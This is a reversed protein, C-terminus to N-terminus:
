SAGGTPPMKYVLRYQREGSATTKVAMRTQPLWPRLVALAADGAVDAALLGGPLRRIVAVAGTAPDTIQTIFEGVANLADPRTDQPPM